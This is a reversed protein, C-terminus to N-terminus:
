WDLLVQSQVLSVQCVVLLVQCHHYPQYLQELRVLWQVLVVSSKGGIILVPSAVAGIGMATAIMTKTHEDLSSFWTTAKEVVGCVKELTPALAGIFATGLEIGSNKIQNIAKHAKVSPTELKELAEGVDDTDSAMTEVTKNFEDVGGNLIALGAKGAEASSWLENYSIGNEDAYQKTIQLVDALSMGSNM